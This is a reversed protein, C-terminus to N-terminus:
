QKQILFDAYEQLATSAMESIMQKKTQQDLLVKFGELHKSIKESNGQQEFRDVVTLHMTLARVADVNAFEGNEDYRKVLATLGTASIDNLLLEMVTAKKNSDTESTATFVLNTLGHKNEPVEVYVPVDVTEGAAVEIVNHQIMTEWGAETEATIRILDTEEGINTVSFNHTAIRGPIAQETTSSAATIGREFSGAGDM